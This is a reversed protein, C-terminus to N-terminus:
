KQHQKQSAQKSGASKKPSSRQYPVEFSPLPSELRCEQIPYRIAKKKAKKIGM